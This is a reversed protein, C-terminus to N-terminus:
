FTTSFEGVPQGHGLVKPGFEAVLEGTDHGLMELARFAAIGRVRQGGDGIKLAFARGDALAGVHVAEAGDKCILTPVTRMMATTDRDEGALYQPNHTIANFIAAEHSHPNNRATNALTSFGRALATLSIRFLPAGCGDITTGQITEGTIEQITQAIGQQLPHHPDLYTDLDWNNTNATALMAAHKGSCNQMLRSPKLRNEIAQKHAAIGFPLDPTNRLQQQTLGNTALMELVTDLHIAEGSHSASALTLHTPTGRYGMRMMALTQLPKLASRPYMPAAPEGITLTEQGNSNLLVLSGNHVSEVHGGRKM